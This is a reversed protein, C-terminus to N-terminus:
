GVSGAFSFLNHRVLRKRGDALDGLFLACKITADGDARQHHEHYYRPQEFLAGPLTM